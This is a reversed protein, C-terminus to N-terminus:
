LRRGMSEVVAPYPIYENKVMVNDKNGETIEQIFKSM